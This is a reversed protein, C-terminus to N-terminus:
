RLVPLSFQLDYMNEAPAGSTATDGFPTEDFTAALQNSPYYSDIAALAAPSVEVREAFQMDYARETSKAQLIELGQRALETHPASPHGYEAATATTAGTACFLLVCLQIKM